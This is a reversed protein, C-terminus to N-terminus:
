SPITVTVSNSDVTSSDNWGEVTYTIEDGPSFTGEDHYAFTVDDAENITEVAGGNISRFVHYGSVTMGAASWALDICIPQFEDIAPGLVAAVSHYPTSTGLASVTFKFGLPVDTPWGSTDLTLPYTGVADFYTNGFGDTFNGYIGSDSFSTGGTALDYVQWQFQPSAFVDGSTWRETIEISVELNGTNKIGASGAYIVYGTVPSDGDFWWRSDSDLAQWQAPPVNSSEDTWLSPDSASASM